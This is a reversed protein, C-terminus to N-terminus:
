GGFLLGATSTVSTDYAVFGSPVGKGAFPVTTGAFNGIGVTAGVGNGGTETAFFTGSLASFSVGGAGTAPNASGSNNWNNSNRAFWALKGSLDFAMSLIDNASFLGGLNTTNTGNVYIAASGFNVFCGCGSTYASALGGFTATSLAIGGGSDGGTLATFKIEYYVKGSKSVTARTGSQTGNSTATLNGNSFTTVSQDSPNWTVAM